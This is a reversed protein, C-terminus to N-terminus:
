SARIGSNSEGGGMDVLEFKSLRRAAVAEKRKRRVFWFLGLFTCIVVLAGVCVGVVSGISIQEVTPELFPISAATFAVYPTVSSTHPLVYNM